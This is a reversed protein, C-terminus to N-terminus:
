SVPEADVLDLNELINVIKEATYAKKLNKNEMESSHTEKWLEIFDRKPASDRNIDPYKGAFDFYDFHLGRNYSLSQHENQTIIGAKYLEESMMAMEKATSHRVQYKSAITAVTRATEFHVTKNLLSQPISKKEAPINGTDFPESRSNNKYLQIESKGVRNILM